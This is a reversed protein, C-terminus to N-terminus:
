QYIIFYLNLLNIYNKFLIIINLDDIVDIIKLRLCKFRNVFLINNSLNNNYFTAYSIITMHSQVLMHRPGGVAPFLGAM